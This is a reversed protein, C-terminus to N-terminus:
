FEPWTRLPLGLATVFLLTSMVALVAGLMISQTLKIGPAALGAVIVTLFICIVLGARELTFAFVLIAGTLAFLPRWSWADLRHGDVLFGRSAVVLGLFGLLYSLVRPVWGSGMNAMRGVPLHAAFVYALVAILILFLGAALDQPNKLRIM